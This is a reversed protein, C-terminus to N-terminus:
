VKDGLSFSLPQRHVDHRVKYHQQSAQLAESVQAQKRALTQLFSLTSTKEKKQQPTGFPQLQLPLEYPTAPQYRLFAEM